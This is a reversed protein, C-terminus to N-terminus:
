EAKVVETDDLKVENHAHLLFSHTVVVKNAIKNDVFTDFGHGIDTTSMARKFISNRGCLAIWYGWLRDGHHEEIYLKQYKAAIAVWDDWDKESIYDKDIRPPMTLSHCCIERHWKGWIKETTVEGFYAVDDRAADNNIQYTIGHGVSSKPEVWMPAYVWNDGYIRYADDIYKDWYKACVIDSLYIHSVFEDDPLSLVVEKIAATSRHVPTLPEIMKFSSQFVSVNDFKSIWKENPFVDNDVVLIIKHKYVSNKNLARISTELEKRAPWPDGAENRWIGDESQYHAANSSGHGGSQVTPRYMLLITTKM